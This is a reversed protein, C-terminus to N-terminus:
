APRADLVPQARRHVAWALGASVLLAVLNLASDSGAWLTSTGAILGACLLLVRCGGNLARSGLCGEVAWGILAASMTVTLVAYAVEVASGHGLLAPNLAFVFPLLYGAAGLRLGIISTKWLDSGAISAAAYSAMAVPPTLMSMLGFYFIFLHAPLPAIGMKVLTPALVVSLLVYVAATPMGMGLVVAIMATLALMALMGANQGAATLLVTVSFSLGSINLVGIVIGAAASVLLIALMDEGVGVTLERLLRRLPVRHGRLPALLLMTGAAYLAAKSVSTGAWFMLYVLLAIPVLFVWGETLVVKLAPLSGRAIGRLGNRAAHSDIQVLLALYFILAPIIAALVVDGYPIQLFEAILFATTGMVPPTIQGANSAVAEVAGAYAPPFGHRKMLPITVIGSSVVNAVSSGSILGFLSSSGVAVKAPGGRYHGLLALSLQDFFKGAGTMGLCRSFFIFALVITSAVALVTGPVGNTDTYLYGILRRPENHDAQIVGPLWHGFLGYLAFLGMLIAIGNGCHRRTAELLLILAFAGTLWKEAERHGGNILWDEYRVGAWAWAGLAILALALEIAGPSAEKPKKLLGAATALGAIMLIFQEGMLPLGLKLPLDILWIFGVVAIAALCFQCVLRALRQVAENM